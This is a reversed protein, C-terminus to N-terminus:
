KTGDLCVEVQKLHNMFVRDMTTASTNVVSAVGVVFEDDTTYTGPMAVCPGGGVEVHGIAVGVSGTPDETWTRYDPCTGGCNCINGSNYCADDNPIEIIETGNSARLRYNQVGAPQFGTQVLDGPFVNFETRTAHAAVYYTELMKLGGQRLARGKFSKYSPIAMTSLIGILAVVVLLEILSFGSQNNYKM